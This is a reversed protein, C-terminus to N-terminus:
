GVQRLRGFTGLSGGAGHRKSRRRSISRMVGRAAAAAAQDLLWYLDGDVPSILQSPLEEPNAPGQLVRVVTGAKEAGAVLFAVVAAHNIVPATLTLRYTELQPVHNAIALRDTVRLGATHPFLSATHGDPGMGLFILDLQPLEGANLTFERRLEQDYHAAAADPDGLETHFRHIQSEDLALHSLLTERAMRYNSEVDDPPVFREDGWYFQVQSWDVQDRYPPSALLTHLARPTSGGSLAVSFSGGSSTVPQCLEVFLEAAAHAVGDLDAYVEIHRRDGHDATESMDAM